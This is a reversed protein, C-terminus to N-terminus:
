DNKKLINKLFLLFRENEFMRGYENIKPWSLNKFELRDNLKKKGLFVFYLFDVVAKEPTAIYVAERGIKKTIFGGFASKKIKHYIFIKNQIKFERTPMTTASIVPYIIEPILNYYSLAKELSIYSPHYLNNALCFEDPLDRGLAFLGNKLRVLLGKRVNYSTFADVARRNAGFIVMLDRPNFIRKGLSLLKSEVEHSKLKKM